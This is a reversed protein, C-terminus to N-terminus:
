GPGRPCPGPGSATLSLVKRHVTGAALGRVGGLGPEAHPAAGGQRRATGGAARLERGLGREAELAAMTECLGCGGRGLAALARVDGRLKEGLQLRGAGAAPHPSLAPGDGHEEAVHLAGGGGRGAHVGLLPGLDHVTGELAQDLGDVPVLPGQGAEQAVSDEGEEAGGDGVLVVGLSGDQRGEINELANAGVALFDAASPAQVEVHPDAEVRAQHDHSLHAGVQPHVIGGHPVRHVQRGAHLLHGQRPGDLDRFAGVPQHRGEELELVQPAHLDLAPALGEV